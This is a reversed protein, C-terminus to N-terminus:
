KKHHKLQVRRLPLKVKAKRCLEIFKKEAYNPRGVTLHTYVNRQRRDGKGNTTIKVVLDKSLYATAKKVGSVRMSLVYAALSHFLKASLKITSM